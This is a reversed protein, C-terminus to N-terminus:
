VDNETKNPAACISLLEVESREQFELSELFLLVSVGKWLQQTNQVKIETTPLSVM